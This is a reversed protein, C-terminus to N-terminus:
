GGAMAGVVRLVEVGCLVAEPLPAAMGENSFDEGGAFFRIFPRRRGTAPDRITGRLAPFRAEIADVLVGYTPVDGGEWAISVEGSVGALQRLHGPLGIRIRVVAGGPVERDPTGSAGGPPDVREEGSM